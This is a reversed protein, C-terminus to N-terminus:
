NPLRFSLGTSIFNEPSVESLGVGTSFDFQVLEALMFTVGGNFRHDPQGAQETAFGYFEVFFGLRVTADMCFALTYLGTAAASSGDWEIGLNTGLELWNTLNYSITFRFDTSIFDQSFDSPGNRLTVHSILAVQPIWGNADAIFIKSGLSLPGIGSVVEDSAINANKLGLYEAIVRFEFHKSVGIRFLSTNYTLNTLDHDRERIFGTELQITGSPVLHSSETQDPRDTSLEEQETQGFVYLFPCIVALTTLISVKVTPYHQQASDFYDILGSYCLWKM